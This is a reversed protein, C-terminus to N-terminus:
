EPTRQDMSQTFPGGDAALPPSEDVRGILRRLRQALGLREQETLCRGLEHRRGHSEVTLRSPHLPSGGPRIRVQAWHRPFVVRSPPRAPACEEITVFQEEITVIQQEHRRDLSKKLAWALLGLELGAFPLVLWFGMFTIPLAVGLCLLCVSAFFWRAGRPSLSCHPAIVIRTSVLNM